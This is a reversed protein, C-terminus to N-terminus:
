LLITELAEPLSLIPASLRWFPHAAVPYKAFRVTAMPRAPRMLVNPVYGFIRSVHARILPCAKRATEAPWKAFDSQDCIRPLAGDQGIM